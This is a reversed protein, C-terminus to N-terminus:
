GNKELMVARVIKKKDTDLNIAWDLYHDEHEPNGEYVYRMCDDFKKIPVMELAKFKYSKGKANILYKFKYGYKLLLNFVVIAEAKNYYQPHLEMLIKCPKDKLVEIGGRIAAIEAGEIDMKIFDPATKNDICFQEITSCSIIKSKGIGPQGKCLTTLNPKKSLYIKREEIKDSIANRSIVVNKLDQTNRALVKYSRKDPEWAYVKDCKQSLHLTTYGINGGIDFAIGHAEKRLLWMFAPERRRKKALEGSIGGDPPNLYLKFGDVKRRIM